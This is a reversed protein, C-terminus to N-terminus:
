ATSQQRTRRAVKRFQRKFLEYFQTENGLSAEFDIVTKLYAAQQQM